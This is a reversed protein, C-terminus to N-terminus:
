PMGAMAAVAVFYTMLACFILFFMLGKEKVRPSQFEQLLDSLKQAM